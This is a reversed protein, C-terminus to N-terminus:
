ARAQAKGAIAAASASDEVGSLACSACGAVAVGGADVVVSGAGAGSAVGVVVSLVVDVVSSGAALSWAGTAFDVVVLVTLRVVRVAAALGIVVVCGVVVRVTALAEAGAGAAGDAGAACAGACGVVACDATAGTTSTFLAGAVGGAV